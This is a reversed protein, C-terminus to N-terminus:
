TALIVKARPHDTDEKSVLKLVLVVALSYM